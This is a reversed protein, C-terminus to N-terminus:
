KGGKLYDDIGQAIFLAPYTYNHDEILWRADMDSTIFGAEVLVAPMKTHKLVYFEATKVGRWDYGGYLNSLQQMQKAIAEALRKGETSDPYHYVEFGHANPNDAGNLHISVFIDANHYNAIDCRERLSVHRDSDRTLIVDYGLGKLYEATQKAIKLAIDKERLGLENNVAGPDPGGHGPDIVIVKSM